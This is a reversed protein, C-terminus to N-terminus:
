AEAGMSAASRMAERCWDLVAAESPALITEMGGAFRDFAARHAASLGTLVPVGLSMAEAIVAGFGRGEAESLGFKNLIVLDAEGGQLRALVIGVAEEFAGADMRCAASGAGLEQTIRALPGEPLLWLDSRCSVGDRRAVPRLAGVLRVGCLGLREAVGALLRDTAGREGAMVGALQM